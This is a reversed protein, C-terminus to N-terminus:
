RNVVLFPAVSEMRRPTMGAVDALEDVSAFPGNIKRYNILREAMETGIGPLRALADADATNLDVAEQARQAILKPRKKARAPPRIGHVAMRRTGAVPAAIEEGDFLVEALDVGAQDADARFGGAKSVADAARVGPPLHYIGPRRVAGAVYVVIGDQVPARRHVPTRPLVSSQVTVAAPRSPAHVFAAIVAAAILGIVVYRVNHM